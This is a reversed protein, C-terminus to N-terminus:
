KFAAGKLGDILKLKEFKDMGKFLDVADLSELSINRKRIQNATIINKFCDGSLTWTKVEGLATM